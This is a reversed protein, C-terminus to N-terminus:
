EVTRLIVFTHRGAEVVVSVEQERVVGGQADRYTLLLAHDGEDLDLQCMWIQDPVTFWARKDAVESATRALASTVSVLAGALDGYDGGGADRAAEEALRGLAYKVVARAIAKGRVRHIRDALDRQAIAGVNEVLEAQLTRGWGAPRVDVHDIRRPVSRYAPFAVRVVDDALLSTAIQSARAVHREADGEVEIKNVYPWGNIVAIDIFTDIKVPARGNYHLVVVRGARDNPPLLLQPGFRETFEDEAWPALRATLRRADRRLSPPSGVGLADGYEAYADLALKYAVWAEDLDGDEEFFIAALYHGFADDRYGNTQGDVVELQRLFFNLQRIEVLAEEIVGLAQYNIASFVHILAREFNEGYYPRTNDNALFTSAEATISKTYHLEALRKAVEFSANSERFSGAYHHLMGRELHYLVANKEGFDDRAEELVALAGEHDYVQVFALMERNVDTPGVCSCLPLVAVLLWQPLHRAPAQLARM